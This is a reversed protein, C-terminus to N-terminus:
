VHYNDVQSYQLAPCVTASSLLRVLVTCGGWATIIPFLLTGTEKSVAVSDATTVRLSNRSVHMTKSNMDYEVILKLGTWLREKAISDKDMESLGEPIPVSMKRESNYFLSDIFYFYIVTNRDAYPAGFVQSLM